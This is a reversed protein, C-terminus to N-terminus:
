ALCSSGACSQFRAPFIASSFARPLRWNSVSLRFDPKWYFRICWRRCIATSSNCRRFTLRGHLPRSWSAAQQCAERLIWEGMQIILGSDEALPIFVGPSVMGRTPHKWRMLAEFGIVEGGIRAQPQYHLALQNLEIASGLDHQLARRERLQADMEAEFFRVSGRGDRKARYLAADANALLTEVISGDSPYVAVGISLGTRVVHGDINIEDAVAAQLRTVLGETM